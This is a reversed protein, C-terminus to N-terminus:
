IKTKLYIGFVFDSSYKELYNDEFEFLREIIEKKEPTTEVFHHSIDKLTTMLINGSYSAEFVTLYNKHISPLIKESEICESPDAIKMRILGSGYVKNKYLNLKFRRRFKKPISSLALNIARIQHRPFQVRNPGVYEDIILLGNSKLSNKIKIGVLNDINKFHHLSARFYVVDFYNVPFKFTNADQVKFIINGLEKSKAIDAAENLLVNSIDVCTIEQFNSYTAFKLESNCNGSGLSLMKINKKDALYNAVTFDVFDINESGTVLKNWRKRIAPIIWWNSSSISTHNFATRAREIQNINFKSTIFSLGRQNLKPYTDFIDDLTILKM